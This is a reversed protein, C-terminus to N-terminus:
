MKNIQNTIQQSLSKRMAIAQFSLYAREESLHFPISYRENMFETIKELIDSGGILAHKGQKTLAVVSNPNIYTKYDIIKIKTKIAFENVM